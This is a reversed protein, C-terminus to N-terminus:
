AASRRIPSRNQLDKRASDSGAVTGILFYTAAERVAIRGIFALLALGPRTSAGGGVIFGAGAAIALATVPEHRIYERADCSRRSENLAFEASTKMAESEM